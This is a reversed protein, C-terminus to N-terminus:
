SRWKKDWFCLGLVFFFILQGQQITLFYHDTLSLLILGALIVLLPLGLTDSGKFRQFVKVFAVLLIGVLVALGALGLEAATLLFVNHAPQLWRITERLEFFGPLWIIFNGPGVGFFPNQSFMEVAAVALKQRLILSHADTTAIQSFRALVVPGLLITLVSGALFAAVTIKFKARQRWFWNLFILFFGFGGVLWASRSFTILLTAVALSFVLFNVITKWKLFLISWLFIISSVFLFGAMVNPHSFTAYPRLFERGEFEVISITPTALNFSREGLIWLGISHGSLFQTWALICTVVVSVTLPYFLKKLQDIKLQSALFVALLSFEALKGVKYFSVLKNQSLVASILFLFFISCFILGPQSNLNTLIKRPGLNVLWLIVLFVLIIDTLFITPSLYDIRVGLVLSSAPWFHKGLQVPLLLVLLWLLNFTLRRPELKQRLWLMVSSAMARLSAPSM